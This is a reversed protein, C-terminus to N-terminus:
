SRLYSFLALLVTVFIAIGSWLRASDSKKNAAKAEKLASAALSNAERAIDLEKERENLSSSIERKTLATRLVPQMTSGFRSRAGKEIELRLQDDTLNNVSDIRKKSIEQFDAPDLLM